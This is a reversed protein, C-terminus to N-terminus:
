MWQYFRAPEGLVRALSMVLRLPGSKFVERGAAELDADTLGCVRRMRRGIEVFDAWPVRNNKDLVYELSYMGELIRAPDAGHAKAIDLFTHVAKCTVDSM